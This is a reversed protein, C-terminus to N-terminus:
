WNADAIAEKAMEAVEEYDIPKTFVAFVHDRLASIVDANSLTPAIVIARLGPRVLKLERILLLDDSATTAPDTILVDYARSRLLHTAEFPGVASELVHDRLHHSAGLAGALAPDSGILLVRGMAELISSCHGDISTFLSLLYAM